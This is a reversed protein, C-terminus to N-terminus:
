SSPEALANRVDTRAFDSGKFLLPLDREHALVYAFMDGLNLAAPHHGKGWQPFAEFAMAAQEGTVPEIRVFPQQLFANAEEHLTKSRGSVVVALEVATGASVLATGARGITRRFLSAEPERQLIAIIASTDLVIM